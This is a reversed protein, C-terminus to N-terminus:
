NAHGEEANSRNDGKQEDNSAEAVLREAIRREAIMGSISLTNRLLSGFQESMDFMSKDLDNLDIFLSFKRSQLNETVGMEQVNADIRASENDSGSVTVLADVRVNVDRHKKDPQQPDQLVPGVLPHMQFVHKHGWWSIRVKYDDDNNTIGIKCTIKESILNTANVNFSIFGNNDIQFRSNVILRKEFFVLSLVPQNDQNVFTVHRKMPKSTAFDLSRDGVKGVFADITSLWLTVREIGIKRGNDEVTIESAVNRNFEVKLCNKMQFVTTNLYVPESKFSTNSCNADHGNVKNCSSCRSKRQPEQCINSRHGIQGCNYCTNQDM